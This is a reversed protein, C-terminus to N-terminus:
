GVEAFRGVAFCGGVSRRGPVGGRRDADPSPSAVLSFFCLFSFFARARREHVGSAGGTVSSVDRSVTGFVIRSSRGISGGVLLHRLVALPLGVEVAFDPVLARRDRREWLAVQPVRRHCFVVRQKRQYPAVCEEVTEGPARAKSDRM